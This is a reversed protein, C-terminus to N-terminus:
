VRRVSRKAGLASLSLDVEQDRQLLESVFVARGTVYGSAVLPGKILAAGHGLGYRRNHLGTVTQEDTPFDHMPHSRIGGGLFSVTDLQGHAGGEQRRGLGM